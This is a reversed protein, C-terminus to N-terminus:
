LREHLNDGRMIGTRAAPELGIEAARAFKVVPDWKTYYPSIKKLVIM